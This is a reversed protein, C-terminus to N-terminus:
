GLIPGEYLKTTIHVWLCNILKTQHESTLLYGSGDNTSDLVGLFAHFETCLMANIWVNLQNFGLVNVPCPMFQQSGCSVFVSYSIHDIYLLTELVFIEYGLLIFFSILTILVQRIDLCCSRIFFSGELPAIDGEFFVNDFFKCTKSEKIICELPNNMDDAISIM